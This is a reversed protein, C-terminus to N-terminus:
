LSNLHLYRGITQMSRIPSIFHACNVIYTYNTATLWFQMDEM